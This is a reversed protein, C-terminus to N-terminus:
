RYAVGVGVSYTGSTISSVATLAGNADTTALGISLGTTFLSHEDYWKTIVGNATSAAETIKIIDLYATGSAATNDYLVVCTGAPVTGFGTITVGMCFGPAAKIVSTVAGTKILAYGANNVQEVPTRGTSPDYGMASQEMTHMALSTGAVDTYHNTTSDRLSVATM